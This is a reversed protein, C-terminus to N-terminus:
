RMFIDEVKWVCFVSLMLDSVQESGESCALVFLCFFFVPYCRVDHFLTMDFILEVINIEAWSLSNKRLFRLHSLQELM